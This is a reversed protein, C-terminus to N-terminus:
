KATKTVGGAGKLVCRPLIKKARWFACNNSFVACLRTDAYSQATKLYLGNYGADIQYAVAVYLAYAFRFAARINVLSSFFVLCVYIIYLIRTFKCDSLVRRKGHCKVM